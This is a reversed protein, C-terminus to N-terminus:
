PEFCALLLAADRAGNERSSVKAVRVAHELQDDKVVVAKPM